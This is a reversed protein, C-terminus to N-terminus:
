APAGFVAVNPKACVAQEDEKGDEKEGLCPISCELLHVLHELVLHRRMLKLAINTCTNLVVSRLTHRLSINHHLPRWKLAFFLLHLMDLHSIIFSLSLGLLINSPLPLE